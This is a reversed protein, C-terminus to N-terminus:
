AANPGATALRYKMHTLYAWIPGHLTIQQSYMVLFFHVNAQELFTPPFSWTPKDQIKDKMERFGEM